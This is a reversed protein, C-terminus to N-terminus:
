ASQFMIIETLLGCFKSAIFFEGSVELEAPASPLASGEAQMVEM